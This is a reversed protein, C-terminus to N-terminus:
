DSLARRIISRIIIYFAGLFSTIILALLLNKLLSPAEPRLPPLPRDIIQIFPIANKLSFDAIEVNKLAEGYIITLSTVQRQLRQLDLQGRADWIGRHTERFNAIQYEASKLEGFISDKKHKVLKLTQEQKETSQTIYYESLEDFLTNLMEISLNQDETALRMTMIGTLESYGTKLHPEEKGNESGVLFSYVKKFAAKELISFQDISDSAFRFGKFEPNKRSWLRDLDHISILHNAFLDRKDHISTSDFLARRTIQMSRSLELIKDLNFNSRAGGGIGFQGLIGAVGSISSGEDENVMFSIKATYEPVASFVRYLQIALVPILIIIFVKWGSLIERWYAKLSLLFERLSVEEQNQYHQNGESM